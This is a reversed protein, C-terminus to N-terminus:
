QCLAILKEREDKWLRLRAAEVVGDYPLQTLQGNEIDRLVYRDHPLVKHVSYPGRFKPILKKNSGVSTDVNRMVVFDGVSYVRTSKSRGEFLRENRAQSDSINRAAADRMTKLCRNSTTDEKDELHEALPDVIPGRQVVGFM